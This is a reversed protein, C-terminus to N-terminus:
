TSSRPSTDRMAPPVILVPCPAHLACQQSVSGLFLGKFGGLGRSGVVLLDAGRGAELLAQAPPMEIVTAKVVVDPAVEGARRVAQEAHSAGAAAYEAMGFLMPAVLPAPYIWASVVEVVAGTQRAERVAWELADMSNESGDVGVVIRPPVPGARVEEDSGQTVGL